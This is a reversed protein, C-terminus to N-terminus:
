HRKPRCGARSGGPRQCELGLPIHITCRTSVNGHRASVAMSVAGLEPGAGAREPPERAENLRGDQVEQGRALRAVPILEEIQKALASSAAYSITAERGTGATWAAGIADLANKLSAAAFVVVNDAAQASPVPSALMGALGFLGAALTTTFHRRTIM